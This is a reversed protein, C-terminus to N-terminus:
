RNLCDNLAAYKSEKENPFSNYVSTTQYECLFQM